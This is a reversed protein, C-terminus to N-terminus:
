GLGQICREFRRQRAPNPFRTPSRRCGACPASGTTYIDISKRATEAGGEITKVLKGLGTGADAITEVFGKLRQMPGRTQEEDDPNRNNKLKKLARQAKGLETKLRKVAEPDADSADEADEALNDLLGGLEICVQNKREIRIDINVDTQQQVFTHQHLEPSIQVDFKPSVEVWRTDSRLRELSSYDRDSLRDLEKDAGGVGDGLVLPQAATTDVMGELMASISVDTGSEPRPVTSRGKSVYKELDRYDYMRPDAVEACVPCSCPIRENVELGSFSRAHTRAIEHRLVALLNRRALAPGAVRLRLIKGGRSDEAEVLEARADGSHSRLIAGKRWILPRGEKDAELLEHLRVILRALLGKPMFPYQYQFHLNDREEWDYEPTVTPLLQPVIHLEGGGELPFCIEFQDKQLLRFLRDIEYERYGEAALVEYFFRRRLRGKQNQVEDRDLVRYLANVAWQPDTIIFDKLLPDQDFYVCIGVLSLYRVLVRANREQDIGHETCLGCFQEFSL